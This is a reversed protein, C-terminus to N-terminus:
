MIALTEVPTLTAILEDAFQQTTTIIVNAQMSLDITWREETQQEGDEFPIQRPDSTYLPALALGLGDFSTVAFQDRFLTAIRAANDASAPGHVDVQIMVHTEQMADATGCYMLESTQNPTASVTYTGTGGTTGTLQALVRCGTAINTGYLSQGIIIPGRTVSTVTLVNSAISATIITDTWADVNMTMRDRAIPWLVAFDAGKPEPVRNTQGRVIPIAVGAATTLGFGNLVSVLATFIQTQTLSVTASM